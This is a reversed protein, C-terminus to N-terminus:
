ANFNLLTTVSCSYITMLYLCMYSFSESILQIIPLLNKLKKREKKKCHAKM